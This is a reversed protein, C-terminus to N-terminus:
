RGVAQPTPVRTVSLGWEALSARTSELSTHHIGRMGLSRAVEVFMARDDMYVVQDPRVQALDLAMHYIAADPKRCHVFASCLFFDIVSALDLAQIRYETLERGENSVAIARLGYRAKLVRVLDMMVPYPQSQAFMFTKFAEPGFTRPRYFVVRALYEDLTIRGEEYTDFTLHHRENMDEQDLNFKEAARRRMGRDWGNTALVGGIDLFLTTISTQNM